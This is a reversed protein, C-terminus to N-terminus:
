EMSRFESASSIKFKVAITKQFQKRLKKGDYKKATNQM